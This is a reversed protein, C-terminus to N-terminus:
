AGAYKATMENVADKLACREEAPRVFGMGCIVNWGVELRRSCVGCHTVRPGSEVRCPVGSKSGAPGTGDPGFRVRLPVPSRGVPANRYRPSVPKESGGKLVSEFSEEWPETRSVGAPGRPVACGRGAGLARLRGGARVSQARARVREGGPTGLPQCFTPFSPPPRSSVHGAAGALDRVETFPDM